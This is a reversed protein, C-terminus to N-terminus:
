GCLGSEVRWGENEVVVAAAEEEEEEVAAVRM